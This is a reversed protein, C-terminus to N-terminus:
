HRRLRDAVPWYIGRWWILSAVDLAAGPWMRALEGRAVAARRFTLTHRIITLLSYDGSRRPM